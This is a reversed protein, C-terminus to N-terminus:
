WKDIIIGNTMTFYWWGVGIHEKFDLKAEQQM